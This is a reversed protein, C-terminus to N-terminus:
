RAYDVSRWHVMIDFILAPGFRNPLSRMGLRPAAYSLLGAAYARPEDLDWTGLGFPRCVDECHSSSWFFRTMNRNVAYVTNTLIDRTDFRVKLLSTGIDSRSQRGAWDDAGRQAGV